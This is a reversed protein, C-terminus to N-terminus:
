ISVEFVEQEPSARKQDQLMLDVEESLVHAALKICGNDRSFIESPPGSAVVRGADLVLIQNANAVTQLRHAIIISTVSGAIRAIAEQVFRDTGDDCASTAEDMLLVSAGQQTMLLARALCLLQKEGASILGGDDSIESDLGNPLNSVVELLGVDKLIDIIAQSHKAGNGCVPDVNSRITGTFLTPLQPLVALSRRLTALQLEQTNVGHLHVAGSSNPALRLLSAALTSKGSGTRGIVGCKEGTRVTFSITQLVIPLSPRWRYSVHEFRIAESGMESPSCCCLSGEDSEPETAAFEQLREASTMFNVLEASLRVTYQFLGALQMVYVLAAATIGPSLGLPITLCATMTIAAASLVFVILDLRVGFWRECSKFAVLCATNKNQVDIFTALSLEQLNYARVTPLSALTSSLCAFVPSRSTGEIRKLDRSTALYFKRLRMFIFVLPPVVVALFPMAICALVVTGLVDVAMRFFDICTMTLMDDLIGVDKSFRNIIRGTTSSQFFLLPAQVVAKISTDHSHRAARILVFFALFGRALLVVGSVLVLSWMVFAWLPDEQEEGPQECWLSIWAVTCLVFAVSGFFSAVTASRISMSGGAKFYKSYVRWPIDGKARDELAVLDVAQSPDGLNLEKGAAAMSIDGPMFAPGKGVIKEVSKVTGDSEMDIFTAVTSSAMVSQRVMEVQHTSLIRASGDMAGLICEKVVHEAVTNDLASLPDDLLQLPARSFVARALALRCRQGGSLTIGREGVHAELGGPLAEIDTQLGAAHIARAVDEPSGKRGLTINERLTAQLIFPQQEVYAVMGQHSRKISGESAQVEGLIALLLATKGCGVPGTVVLLEGADLSLSIDRFAIDGTTKWRVTAKDLHVIPLETKLDPDLGLLLQSSIQRDSIRLIRTLREDAVRLEAIKELAMPAFMGVTVQLALLLALNGFLDGADLEEGAGWLIMAVTSMAVPAALNALALVVARLRGACLLWSCEKNRIEQISQSLEMEWSHMKVTQINKVMDKLSRLRRDALLCTPRRFREFLRAMGLQFPLYLLMVGIGGLAAPGVFVMVGICGIAAIHLPVLVLNFFAISGYEIRSLDSSFLNMVLGADPSASDTGPVPLLLCRKFLMTQATARMRVCLLYMGHFAHAHFVVTFLSCCIMCGAWFLRQGLEDESAISQVLKRLLLAQVCWCTERALLVFWMAVLRGRYAHCLALLASRKKSSTWVSEYAELDGQVQWSSWLEPVDSDVLSRKSGQFLLPYAWSFFLFSIPDKLSGWAAPSVSTAEAQRDFSM